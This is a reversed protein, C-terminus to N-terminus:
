QNYSYGYRAYYKSGYYSEYRELVAVNAKNLVVGLLRDYIEPAATLKAQVLSMQTGGWETVFVVSDIASAAARADVVPALPPLDLVIYDYTERLNKILRKLPESSLIESTHALRSEIVAPLFALRTEEDEALVQGLPSENTLVQLLGVKANPALRRTLTPNRLDLDLLIVRKGSHAILQALNAAITTKGERPLTSTVGIVKNERIAGNIDAAVKVSRLSEAFLSLPEDVVYRLIWDDRSLPLRAAATTANVGILWSM